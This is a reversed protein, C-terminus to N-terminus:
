QDNFKTMVIGNPLSNSISLPTIEELEKASSTGNSEFSSTSPISPRVYPNHENNDSDECHQLGIQELQFKRLMQVVQTMSPRDSSKKMVCLLSLEVLKSFENENFEGKINPDVLEGIQNSRWSKTV